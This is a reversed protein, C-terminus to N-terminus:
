CGPAPRERVWSTYIPQPSPLSVNLPAIYHNTTILKPNSYCRIMPLFAGTLPFGRLPLCGPVERCQAGHWALLLAVSRVFLLYPAYWSANIGQGPPLLAWANLANGSGDACYRM